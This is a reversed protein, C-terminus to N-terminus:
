ELSKVLPSMADILNSRGTGTEGLTTTYDLSSCSNSSLPAEATKLSLQSLRM